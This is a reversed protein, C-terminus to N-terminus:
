NTLTKKPNIALSLEKQPPSLRADATEKLEDYSSLAEQREPETQEGKYYQTLADKFSDLKTYLEKINEGVEQFSVKMLKEISRPLAIETIYDLEDLTGKYLVVTSKIKELEEASLDLQAQVQGDDSTDKKKKLVEDKKEEVKRLIDDKKFEKFYVKIGVKDDKKFKVCVIYNLNVNGLASREVLWNGLTSLSQGFGYKKISEETYFKISFKTERTNDKVMSKFVIDDADGNIIEGRFLNVLM